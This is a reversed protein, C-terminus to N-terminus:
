ACTPRQGSPLPRRGARTISYGISQSSPPVVRPICDIILKVANNGLTLLFHKAHFIPPKAGAELTV